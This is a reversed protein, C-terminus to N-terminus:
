QIVTTQQDPGLQLRYAAIPKDCKACILSLIGHKACYESYLGRSPHCPPTLYFYHHGSCGPSNCNEHEFEVLPDSVMHPVNLCVPCSLQPQRNLRQQTQPYMQHRRRRESRIASDLRKDNMALEGTRQEVIKFFLQRFASRPMASATECEELIQNFLDLFRPTNIKEVLSERSPREGTEQTDVTLAAAFKLLFADVRDSIVKELHNM